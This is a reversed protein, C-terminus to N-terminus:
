RERLAEYKAKLVPNLLYQLVTKKGTRIHVTALMGPIIPLSKGKHMMTSSKTRVQVLYYSDSKGNKEETITDASINEM